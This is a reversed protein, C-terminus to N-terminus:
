RPGAHNGLFQRGPRFIAFAPPAQVDAIGIANRGVTGILGQIEVLRSDDLAVVVIELDSSARRPRVIDVGIYIHRPDPKGGHSAYEGALSIGAHSSLRHNYRNVQRVDLQHGDFPSLPASSNRVLDPKEQRYAPSCWTAQSRSSRLRRSM